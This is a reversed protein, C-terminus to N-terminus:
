WCINSSASVKYNKLFLKFIDKPCSMDKTPTINSPIRLAVLLFVVLISSWPPLSVLPIDLFIVLLDTLLLYTHGNGARPELM